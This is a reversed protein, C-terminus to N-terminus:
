LRGCSCVAATLISMVQLHGRRWDAAVTFPKITSGPEYTDSVCFNRWLANLAEIQEEDTMASLQEQTYYASLERPNNLDFNPYSAEAIIEGNQPNMVIVGTNASGEGVSAENKHEENFALIHKEM